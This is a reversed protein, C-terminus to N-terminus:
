SCRCLWDPFKKVCQCRESQVSDVDGVERITRPWKPELDSGKGAATHARGADERNRRCTVNRVTREARDARALM